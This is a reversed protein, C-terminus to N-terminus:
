QEVEIVGEADRLIAQCSLRCGAEVRGGELPDLPELLEGGALIRVRCMRCSGSMCLYQIPEGGTLITGLLDHGGHGPIDRGRYRIIPM